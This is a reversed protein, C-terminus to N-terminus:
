YLIQMGILMTLVVIDPIPCHLTLISLVKKSLLIDEWNHNYAEQTSKYHEYFKTSTTTQM